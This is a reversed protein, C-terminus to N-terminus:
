FTDSVQRLIDVLYPSLFHALVETVKHLTTVICLVLLDSRVPTPFSALLVTRRKINTELDSVFQETRM